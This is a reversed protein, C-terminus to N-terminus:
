LAGAYTGTVAVVRWRHRDRRVRAVSAHDEFRPHAVDVIELLHGRWRLQVRKPKRSRSPSKAATTPTAARVATLARDGARLKRWQRTAPRPAREAAAPVGLTCLICLALICRM